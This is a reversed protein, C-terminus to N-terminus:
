LVEVPNALAAKIAQFSVTILTIVLAGLSTLVFVWMSIDVHYAYDDLWDKLFYSAIPIAILCSVIILIVFDKSLLRWLDSVTAGLVKRIGIEKKRQEAVYSAMGFLGMCSIFIALGAFFAALKGIREEDGFKQTYAEDVFEYEFPNIPDHQEFVHQIKAIADSPVADPRLKVSAINTRDYNLFFFMPRTLSYPSQTIMNKVVGVITFVEDEGEGWKMNEGVPNELGMYAVAAENLIFAMSDTSFDRSFDRGQAIEWGITKGFDHTVRLTVFEDQMDPDKGKWTLGSNTVWTNTVPSESKAVAEVVGTQMLDNKLANYNQRIEGNKIPITLLRNYSYGIPRNKAFQIQQFVIITGIILTISVTFQIVVLVSRPMNANEGGQFTGKLVKVAQFSSLYLAPYSGAFLGTLIAFGFGILWFTPNSWLISIEKGAIENFFPLLLQVFFLSLGFAFFAILISESFFQSILQQRNSGIAKRIGVELSRKVSRATSLNMFNICALLLVFIGIIGYLWVYQIRGGNNVGNEFDSYLYWKSMPHLFIEPKFKEHGEGAQNLKVDKIIASIEAFDADDTIQVFTQFWNNGWGLWDPKDNLHLEWNGIFDLNAFSSNPPFDKYVGTIKLDYESDINLIKDIPDDKAFYAKATSESIFVAYPDELGNWNGAIMKLTFMEPAEAEMFIGNKTLIKDEFTLTHSNRWSAMSIHKFHSGYNDRLAPGMQKAQSTWTEIGTAFTQKQMVQAIRDYNEHYKDYSLADWIWLGILMAVTMGIALGGINLLSFSKNKLLHRWSILLNHRFMAYNMLTDFIETPIPRIIGPRFLLLVDQTFKKRAKESGFQQDNKMYIEALDGEVDEILDPDCFWRLFKLPLQPLKSPDLKM